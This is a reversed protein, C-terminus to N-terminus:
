CKLPLPRPMQTSALRTRELWNQYVLVVYHCGTEFLFLYILIMALHFQVIEGRGESRM